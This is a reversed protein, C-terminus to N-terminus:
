SAFAAKLHVTEFYNITSELLYAMPQSAHGLTNFILTAEKHYYLRKEFSWNVLNNTLNAVRDAMKVIAVEGPQQLIRNLSDTMQKAKSLSKDKTLAKVGNSVDDGFLKLIADLDIPTDEVVDHLWGLQLAFEVDFASETYIQQIIGTVRYLHTNYPVNEPLYYQNAHAKLAFQKAIQNNKKSLFQTEM